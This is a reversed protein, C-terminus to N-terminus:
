PVQGRSRGRSRWRNVGEGWDKPLARVVERAREAVSGTAEVCRVGFGWADDILMERLATDVRRRLKPREANAIRDPSEIPVFVVLDLRKMADITATILDRHAGDASSVHLYALLDAPSRDFLTASARNSNVSEISRELMLEYDSADPPDAFVHGDSELLYFPEDVVEFHSLHSQLEAILTSKGTAHTGCVAVRFPRHM